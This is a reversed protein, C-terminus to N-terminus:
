QFSFVNLQTENQTKQIYPWNVGWGKYDDTASLTMLGKLFFYRFVFIFYVGMNIKKQQSKTIRNSPRSTTRMNTGSQQLFSVRRHVVTDTEGRERWRLPRCRRYVCRLYKVLSFYISLFLIFLYIMPKTITQKRWCANEKQENLRFISPLIKFRM